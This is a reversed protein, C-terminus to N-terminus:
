CPRVPPPRPGTVSRVSGVSQQKKGQGEECSYPEGVPRSAKKKSKEKKMERLKSAEEKLKRTWGDHMGDDWGM